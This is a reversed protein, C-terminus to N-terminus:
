GFGPGRLKPAGLLKIKPAWSAGLSFINTQIGSEVETKVMFSSYLFSGELWLSVEAFLSIVVVNQAGVWYAISINM